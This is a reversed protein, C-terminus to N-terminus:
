VRFNPSSNFKATQHIVLRGALNFDVLTEEETHIYVHVYLLVM